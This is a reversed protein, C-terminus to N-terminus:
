PQDKKKSMSVLNVKEAEDNAKMVSEQQRHLQEKRSKWGSIAAMHDDSVGSESGSM